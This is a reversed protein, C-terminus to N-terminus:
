KQKELSLAASNICYRLGGPAPGDPFVHGLHADCRQCLVETRQMGHSTDAAEAVNLSDMPHTFSPWGCGSDFKDDSAFLPSGCCVCRYTGIEHSDWFEGSLAPETGKERAVHYQRPSLQARWEAEPKIIKTQM